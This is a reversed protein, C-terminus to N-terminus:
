AKKKKKEHIDASEGADKPFTNPLSPAAEIQWAKSFFVVSCDSSRELSCAAAFRTPRISKHQITCNRHFLIASHNKQKVDLQHLNKTQKLTNHRKNNKKRKIGASEGADNPFLMSAAPAADIQWAKSFFV